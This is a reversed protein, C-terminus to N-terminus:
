YNYEDSDHSPDDYYGGQGNDQCDNDNDQYDDSCGNDQYGDQDDHNDDYDDDGPRRKDIVNLVTIYNPNEVAFVNLNCVKVVNWGKTQSKPPKSNIHEDQLPTIEQSM